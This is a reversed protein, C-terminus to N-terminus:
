EVNTLRKLTALIGHLEKESPDHSVAVFYDDDIGLLTKVAQGQDPPVDLYLETQRWDEDWLVESMLSDILVDWDDLDESMSDVLEEIQRHRAAALVGERWTPSLRGEASQDIEMEVMVRSVEFVAGVAAEFVATLKPVPETQCLLASGAQALVVLKQNPQLNDFPAIGLRWVGETDDRVMDVLIALSQRFLAAEAPRCCM